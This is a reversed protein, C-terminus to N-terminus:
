ARVAYIRIVTGNAFAGNTAVVISTISDIFPPLWGREQLRGAQGRNTTCSEHYRTFCVGNEIFHLTRNFQLTNSACAMYSQTDSNANCTSHVLSGSTIFECDVIVKKFNYPTGNPEASRRINTTGDEVTIEEILEFQPEKLREALVNNLTGKSILATNQRSELSQSTRVVGRFSGNSLYELDALSSIVVVGAKSNTAYDTKGVKDNLLDDLANNNEDYVAKTVTQPYIINGLTDKLRKIIAM